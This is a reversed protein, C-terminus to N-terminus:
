LRISKTSNYLRHQHDNQGHSSAIQRIKHNRANVHQPNTKTQFPYDAFRDADVRLSYDSADGELVLSVGLRQAFAQNSELVDAILGALPLRQFNFDMMNAEIKQMDLLDNILRGLREANNLAIQGLKAAAAPLEGTVGGVMLGLSGRIATLPTRLEHSVTSVFQTKMREVRRQETIDRVILIFKREGADAFGSLSL